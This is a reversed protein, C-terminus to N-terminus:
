SILFKKVFIYCIFTVFKVLYFFVKMTKLSKLFHVPKFVTKRIFNSCYNWGENFLYLLM